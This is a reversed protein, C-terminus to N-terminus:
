KMRWRQRAGDTGTAMCLAAAVDPKGNVWVESHHLSRARRQNVTGGVNIRMDPLLCQVALERPCSLSSKAVPQLDPANADGHAM